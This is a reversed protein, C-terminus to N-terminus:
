HKSLFAEENTCFIVNELRALQECLKEFRTWNCNETGFDFEYGHGWFSLLLDHETPEAQQFKEVLKPLQKEILWATAKFQLPNEPFEFSGTTEVMRAYLIGHKILYKEAEESHGGKAYAYGQIKRGFTQELLALDKGVATDFDAGHINKLNDHQYGHGAIEFGEYVQSLEDAPIRNSPCSKLLHSLLNEKEPLDAIGYDGIRGIRGRKGFLGSNLNFTAKLDYQKLIEIIRKDQELGDDFSFTVYKKFTM